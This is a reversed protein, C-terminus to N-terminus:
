AFLIVDNGRMFIMEYNGGVSVSRYIKCLSARTEGDRERERREQRGQGVWEM